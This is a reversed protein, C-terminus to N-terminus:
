TASSGQTLSASDKIVSLLRAQEKSCLFITNKDELTIQQVFMRSFIICFFPTPSAILAQSALHVSILSM